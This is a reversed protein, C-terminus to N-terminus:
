LEAPTVLLYFRADSLFGSDIVTEIRPSPQAPVDILKQWTIDGLSEKYFVSYTRDAVALFELAVGASDAHAQLALNSSSDNAHTGALYEEINTLGDQDPDANADPVVPDTGNALEWEDQLGDNDTDLDAPPATNSIGLTPGQLLPGIENGGDALRGTSLGTPQPGFDIADIFTGDAAYLRLTEGLRNLSFSLHNPGSGKNGDAKWVVWGNPEIFSLPGVQFKNRGALSPDDTLRLGTLSVPQAGSNFLEVGDDGNVDSALWENIRLANASGLQAPGTNATGSTPNALLRWEGDSRGISQGVISFGYEVSDIIRGVPDRLFVGGGSTRLSRGTKLPFVGTVSAPQASDYEVVVYGSPEIKVGTPFTWSKGSDEELSIQFGSLDVTSASPNHLEIWGSSKADLALVESLLLTQEGPTLNSLGPTATGSFVAITAAGDPLRGESAGETTRDYAIRDIEVGLSDSLTISGGSASLRFGVHTAGADEDAALHAFGGPSVFSLSRIQFLANDNALIIGRLSAPLSPHTNYLELWDDEGPKSNTLWENIKLGATPALEAAFNPAGPTPLTLEWSIASGVRGVTFDTVQSGYTVMDAREGASNYLGVTEGERALKFPAHLGTPGAQDDCYVVVFGRSPIVTDSPFTFLETSHDTLIWDALPIEANGTNVLEIWDVEQASNGDGSAARIENILVQSAVPPSFPLGPSGYLTDSSIWNAPANPDGNPEVSELSFGGGDASIPWAKSDGYIVATVTKGQADRLEIREGGNSLAGNYYGLVNVGPYRAEFQTPSLASALAAFQGPHITTGHPFVFEIGRFSFGSMNIVTNGFNALELFEFVDGGPPNYMIETIRLQVGLEAVQFEAETLASWTGQSRVRAKILVTSNLAVPRSYAMASPSVAGTGSVRPDGGDITFYVTGQRAAMVLAFGRQVRGCYRNFDPADVNPYLSRQRLQQLLVRTRQPFYDNTLRNQETQWQNDRTYLQYPPNQYRHVDRRYDGWRASEAVIALEVERARKMWRVSAGEPTLAGGNFLHKRARDAFALRYDANDVLRTHLSSPTDSNSVRNDYLGLLVLEGDWPVYLFGRSGDKPRVAYWNKNQGWDSHGGYFHLLMYDMFQAFDLYERMQAYASANQMNRLNIMNRYVSFSGDVVEGENVVDYDEKEGGLHAAGFSGDPRESPDYVGWYMGNIFLHVYRNHSALGGMARMTDKMWADRTRQARIRQTPNWHLWSVNFDARLVLTDYSTVPSDPFIPYELRRPGYDGKFVIRLPHKPQKHPDRAANGQVQVGANVQFGQSSDLPMFELSCAREWAPGRNRPHTYIGNSASFLDNIPCVISMTPLALLADKVTNRYAPDNVIEPDMEYDAPVVNGPFYQGNNGHTGWTTPYGSPANGQLPIDDTFIYTHTVIKSPLLNPKFGAVRLVTTSAIRLPGTYVTGGSETPESGNTTYRHTVGPEASSIHLMFPADFWGREVNVHPPPVAGYVTSSGNPLGPTPRLFYRLNGDRDYGYSYDNRQEPYSSGFESVIVRPSEHNVLALFEGAPSLKFNTHLETGPASSRSDKGSAFIVLFKGPALSISPFIWRGPDNLDDTLSWGDLNVVNSGDNYLEIWDSLDRDEDKLGGASINSALFENIRLEPATYDPDVAVLWEQGLFTIPPDARDHIGHSSFWSFQVVGTPVAAFQFRYPGALTGTVSTAAKGNALLDSADVGEVSESFLIEVQTLSRVTLDPKPLISALTPATQDVVEYQWTGAGLSDFANAPTAFDTIATDASWRLEISGAIFPALTFAYVAGSGEVATAAKAGLSLDSAQLGKIPETFTIVVRTLQEVTGPPPEVSLIRPAETDPRMAALEADWQLDSSTLSTNFVQVALVNQGPRLYTPAPLEYDVFSAPEPVAAIAFTDYAREGSPMNYRTVEVGNIWAIFGDDCLARLRWQQFQGQNTLQFSQRLFLSSYQYRMDTISTGDQVNEGYHFPATGRTWAADSYVASRWAPAPNSAEDTGKLYRWTSRTSIFTTTGSNMTLSVDTASFPTVDQYADGIRIEDLLLEAHPRSNNPQSNGAFPRVRDFSYDFTRLSTAAAEAINPESGLTTNIFLYASDNGAWHDIRVIVFTLQDYSASSSQINEIRGNPILAWTNEPAGTSNGIALQESDGSYLSINASRPYINQNEDATPGIRIAVLSIWTTTGDEGRASPLSRFTRATGDAGTYFGKNGSTVLSNGLADVYSLSGEPATDGSTSSWGGPWGIGGSQNSLDTNDTYDFGEYAVLGGSIRAATAGFVVCCLFAAASRNM